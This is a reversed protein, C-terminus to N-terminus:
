PPSDWGGIKNTASKEEESFQRTAGPAYVPGAEAAPKLPKHYRIVNYNRRDYEFFTARGVVKIARQTEDNFHEFETQSCNINQWEPRLDERDITLKM